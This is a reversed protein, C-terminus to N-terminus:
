VVRAQSPVPRQRKPCARDGRGPAHYGSGVSPEVRRRRRCGLAAVEAESGIVPVVDVVQPRGHTLTGTKDFAVQRVQAAAEIVAGGKMLLGRRADQQCAPPSPPRVSIVLTAPAASSLLTLGRYIWTSNWDAGTALPPDSDGGGVASRHAAYLWRSFRDIFRETPARAEEAEVVLPHQPLHHQRQGGQDRPHPASGRHQDVGAFVPDGTWPQAARKRQSPSEDFAAPAKSSREMQLSATAPARWCRRASSWRTPLVERKTTGEVLLATKPELNALARIGDRAKNAAVGELLEASPLSSCSLHRRKAAGIFLAGLAAITMLSEITFPQGM